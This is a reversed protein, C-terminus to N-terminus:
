IHILSLINRQIFRTLSLGLHTTGFHFYTWICYLRLLPLSFLVFLTIHLVIQLTLVADLAVCMQYLIFVPLQEGPM